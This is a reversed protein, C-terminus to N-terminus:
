HLFIFAVASLIYSLLNNKSFIEFILYRFVSEEIIPGVIVVAIFAFFPSISYFPINEKKVEKKKPKKENLEEQTTLKEELMKAEEEQQCKERLENAKKIVLSSVFLALIGV